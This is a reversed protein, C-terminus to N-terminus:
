PFFTFLSLHPFTTYMGPEELLSFGAKTREIWKKELCHFVGSSFIEEGGGFSEEGEKKKQLERM